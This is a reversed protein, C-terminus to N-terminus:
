NTGVEHKNTAVCGAVGAWWVSAGIHLLRVIAAQAICSWSKSVKLFATSATVPASTCLHLPRSLSSPSLLSHVIRNSGSALFGLSCNFLAGLLREAWNWSFLFRLNTFVWVQRVHRLGFLFVTSVASRKQVCVLRDRLTTLYVPLPPHPNPVRLEEQVKAGSSSSM